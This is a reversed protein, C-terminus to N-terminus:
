TVTFATTNSYIPTNGVSAAPLVQVQKTGTSWTAPLTGSQGPITYTWVGVSTMTLDAVVSSPSKPFYKVRLGTCTGSTTVTIAVNVLLMDKKGNSNNSVRGTTIPNAISNGSPSIVLCPQASPVTVSSQATASTAAYVGTATVTNALGGVAEGATTTHTATCTTTAGVALTAACSTAVTANSHTVGVGTLAVNGSNRVTVSFTVVQGSGTFPSPSAAFTTIAIQPDASFAVTTPATTQTSTFGWFPNWGQASATTSVPNGLEAATVTHTATCVITAGPSAPLGVCSASSANSYSRSMTWLTVNGTNTATLTYTIVQGVATYSTVDSSLLLSVAPNAVTPVTVSAAASAATSLYNGSATVAATFGGSDIDAQTVTRTATCSTSAGAALATSCATVGAANNYAVAVGTLDVNGPNTLTVSVTVVQGVATFPSPTAALSTIAVQPNALFPVAFDPTTAVPSDGLSATTGYASGTTSIPSGYEGATVTHTATCTAAGGPALASPSCTGSPTANSYSPTVGTLTLNGNNTVNMTYTIVDGVATYGSSPSALLVAVSPAAAASITNTATASAAVSGYYGFVGVSASITGSDVEAQTVTHTARCTTTVGAALVVACTTTATANSYIAGVSALPVSGTNSITTAYTLVQGAGSYNAVTLSFSTEIAANPAPPVYPAFSKSPNLRSGQVTYTTGVNTTLTLTVPGDGSLPTLAAPADGAEWLKPAVALSFALRRVTASGYSGGSDNCSVRRIEAGGAVNLLRYNVRYNVTGDTLTESWTLRLVNFGDDDYSSCETALSPATQRGGPPTSAIDTTFYNTLGLAGNSADNRESASSQNRMVVVTAGGLVAVIVGMIAVSIIYEILLFGADSRRRGRKRAM